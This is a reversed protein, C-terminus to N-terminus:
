QENSTLVYITDLSVAKAAEIIQEKTVAMIKEASEEPTLTERNFTQSLYFNEISALSDLSTIYANKLALKAADIEEDTITLGSCLAQDFYRNSGEFMLERVMYEDALRTTGAVRVYIGGERGLAKIYYPRQRGESIEAVIVTKGDITQLSIDPIIAPECSDSVANAIADMKKFVDEKDFGVVERTKDAIGFIIKGGTGNAFAVVSKMYKISKEPLNEKFEVNKSEGALIEEITM